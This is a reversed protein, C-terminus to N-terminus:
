KEFDEPEIDDLFDRFRQMELEAESASEAPDGITVGASAVVSEACWIGCPVRQAVAIADSARSSIVTGDDLVLQAYFVAERVEVIEVRKVTRGLARIVTCLLDHTLPRPPVMGQQATAIAAAEATGIWVPITRSGQIEKLLVVPQASPMELRVGVLEMEIM